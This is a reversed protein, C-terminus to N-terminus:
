NYKKGILYYFGKKIKEGLEEWWIERVIKELNKDVEKMSILRGLYIYYDDHGM